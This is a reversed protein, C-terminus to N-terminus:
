LERQLRVDLASYRQAIENNKLAIAIAKRSGVLVALKKARSIATYLLNRQLFRFHQTLVPIVVAPYEAGQAKHISTAFAPVLEDLDSWDYDVPRGDIDVVLRGAELDVATIRGVDGNFVERDYANRTQMVRDGLRFVRGAGFSREPREPAPPNLVEQLRRNLENVGADGKYMPALVQIDDLPHLGFREPIRRAVLDVILEAAQRPDDKVFLFFDRADAPTVLPQGQRVRHSNVIILSEAAQRFITELRVVAIRGTRILDRLVNGPGVSPLQDIDGVLLLHADRPVAKLLHNALLLDLMSAEDIIVMEAELPNGADHLFGDPSYGLLRHVTQAPRGTAEALRKAARGTPAALVYRHQHRELAAILARMATSKGTGPGGTLVTVKNTLATRIARQQHESLKVTMGPLRALEPFLRAWDAGQFSHAVRSGPSTLIARLANTAGVEAHYLPKLYVVDAEAASAAAEPDGVVEPGAPLPLREAIVERVAELRELAALVTAPEVQLLEAAREALQERPVYVHGEDTQRSLAHLVGAEIRSDADRPLGMHMAIRDATLFGIGYVERALRYPDRSVVAIAENGYQKYIKVALATSVGHSQLFLMVDKIAQQEAWARAIDAVRKRGIGPVRLLQEPDQELVQLTTLGFQRVIREAMRPGIGKVLGSGLYRRLGEITAPLIQECSVARFQAGRLPHNSWAGTLRLSEGPQLEPLNGVVTVVEGRRPRLRVVSYGNEANHYTIREVAGELTEVAVVM